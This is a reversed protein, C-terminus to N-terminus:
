LIRKLVNPDVNGGSLVCVVSMDRELAVAGATIAALAAAGAPEAALKLRQLILRLAAVIHEEEVRVVSDVLARVHAFTLDGAFPAALGDAITQQGELHTPRGLALSRSMVDAASPEVGVVRTAPRLRKVAAAIGAILGGGGVPVIVLDADPVQEMLELGVTGQGAIVMPDDFPHVLTLGRERELRRCEELLNGSTLVPEGGYARVAEIKSPVATAPMVITARTRNVRAAWALAAGHNGASLTILGRALAEAPVTRLRNLVGRAKFSGTRQFLEAKFALRCGLMQTLSTSSLTPTRHVQAAIREAAARVDALSVLVPPGMEPTLASM